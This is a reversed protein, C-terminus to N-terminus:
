VAADVRVLMDGQLHVCTCEDSVDCCKDVTRCLGFSFLQGVGAKFVQFGAHQTLLRV